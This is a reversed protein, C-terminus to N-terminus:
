AHSVAFWDREGTISVKSTRPITRYSPTSAPNLSEEFCHRTLLRRTVWAGKRRWQRQGLSLWLTSGFISLNINIENPHGVVVGANLEWNKELRRDFCKKNKRHSGGLENLILIM